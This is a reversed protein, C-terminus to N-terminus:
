PPGWFWCGPVGPDASCFFERHLDVFQEQSLRGDGDLHLHAFSEDADTEDVFLSELLRRYELRGILGDEDADLLRFLGNAWASLDSPSIAPIAKLIEALPTIPVLGHEDALSAELRRYIDGFLGELEQYPASGTSWGRISALRDVWGAVDAERRVPPM